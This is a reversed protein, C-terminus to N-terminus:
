QKKIEDLVSKKIEDAYTVARHADDFTIETEGIPYRAQVYFSSLVSAGQVIGPQSLRNGGGLEILRELDHVKEFEKGRYVLLGKLYKEGAQQAHFCAQDSFKKQVLLDRALSLDEDAKKFWEEALEKNNKEM